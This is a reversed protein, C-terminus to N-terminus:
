GSMEQIDVKDRLIMDQIHPYRMNHRDTKNGRKKESPISIYLLITFSHGQCRPHEAIVLDYSSPSQHLLSKRIIWNSVRILFDEFFGVERWAYNSRAKCGRRRSKGVHEYCRLSFDYDRSLTRTLM